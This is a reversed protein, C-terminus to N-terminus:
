LQFTKCMWLLLSHKGSPSGIKLGELFSRCTRRTDKAFKILKVKVRQAKKLFEAEAEIDEELEDESLCLERVFLVKEM